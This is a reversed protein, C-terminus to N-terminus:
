NTRRVKEALREVLATTEADKIVPTKVNVIVHLDGRVNTFKINKFGRGRCNHRQGHQAGPRITIEVMEGDINEIEKTCGLMADFVDIETQTVLNLDERHFRPDRDLEIVITLDGRPMNRMSNDGYGNLKIVHGNDIGPPIKFEVSEQEGSPLQYAINMNKGMYADRLSIKCRINLDKNKITQQHHFQFGFNRMMDEFIDNGQNFQAFGDGFHFTHHFPGSSTNFHYQNRNNKQFDYQARSEPDNLINYAENIEKFKNEDGGRDPHYKMALNKFARKIDEQSADESIGLTSYHSM